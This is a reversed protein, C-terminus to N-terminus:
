TKIWPSLAMRNALHATGLGAAVLGCRIPIEYNHSSRIPLFRHVMPRITYDGLFMATSFLLMLGSKGKGAAMAYFSAMAMVLLAGIQIYNLKQLQFTSTVDWVTLFIGLAAAGYMLRPAPIRFGFMPHSMVFLCLMVIGANYALERFLILMQKHSEAMMQINETPFPATVTNGTMPEGYNAWRKFSSSNLLLRGIGLQSAIAICIASLGFWSGTGYYISLYICYLGLLGESILSQWIAM